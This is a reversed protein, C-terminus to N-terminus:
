PARPAHPFLHLCPLIATSPAAFPLRTEASPAFTATAFRPLVAHSPGHAPSATQAADSTTAPATAEVTQAQFVVARALLPQAFPLTTWGALAPVAFVLINLQVFTQLGYCM